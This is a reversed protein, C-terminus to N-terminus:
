NQYLVMTSAAGPQAQYRLSPTIQLPAWWIHYQTTQLTAPIGGDVDLLSLQGHM